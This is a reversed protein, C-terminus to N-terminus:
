LLVFSLSLQMQRSLPGAWQSLAGAVHLCRAAHIELLDHREHTEDVAAVILVSPRATALLDFEHESQELPIAAGRRESRALCVVRKSRPFRGVYRYTVCDSGIRHKLCDLMKFEVVLWWPPDIVTLTRDSDGAQARKRIRIRVNLLSRSEPQRGGIRGVAHFEPPVLPRVVELM